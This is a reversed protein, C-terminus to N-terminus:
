FIFGFAKTILDLFFKGATLFLEVAALIGQGLLTPFRLQAMFGGINALIENFM